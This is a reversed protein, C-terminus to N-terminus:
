IGMPCDQQYKAPSDPSTHEYQSRRKLVKSQKPVAEIYFMSPQKPPEELFTRTKTESPESIMKNKPTQVAKHSEVNQDKEHEQASGRPIHDNRTLTRFDKSQQKPVAEFVVNRRPRDSICIKSMGYFQFVVAKENMICFFFIYIYIYIYIYKDTEQLMCLYM